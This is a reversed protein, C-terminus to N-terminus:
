FTYSQNLPPLNNDKNSTIIDNKKVGWNIKLDFYKYSKSKIKLKSVINLYDKLM